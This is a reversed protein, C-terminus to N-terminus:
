ENEAIFLENMDIVLSNSDLVPNARNLLEINEFQIVKVEDAIKRSKTLELILQKTIPEPVWDRYTSPAGLEDRYVRTHFEHNFLFKDARVFYVKKIGPYYRSNIFNRLVKYEKKLPNIYQFNFTYIGTLLLWAVMAWTFLNRGKEKQFLHVLSETVMIFVALNFAFLTRYSPFNEAAIMSPLYILALLFLIFAVFLVNTTITNERNRRFTIILWAIFVISYFIQSFISRALFLLNLSFGQPFPGSFFFSIKKLLNFHIETRNGAELHYLSLSYKFLFYYALYVALYFIIGMVTIRDPKAKKSQVYRLFFPILFVGFANQYIFLSVIGLVLSSLGVTIRLAAGMQQECLNKFLIHGSVLSALVALFIEMCSAWGIYICVSISCVFYLCGLWSIEKPLNLLVTWKKFILSWILTTLVWGTFSFLRLIKLQEINSISSFFNKFLLGTLWRGQSHFMVFNSNDNNHWLQHIEDLYAYESFFVQFYILVFLLPICFFLVKSSKTFM